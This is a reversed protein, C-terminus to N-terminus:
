SRYIHFGIQNAIPINHIYKEYTTYPQFTTIYSKM